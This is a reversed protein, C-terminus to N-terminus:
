RFSILQYQLSVRESMFILINVLSKSRYIRNQLNEFTLEFCLLCFLIRTDIIFETYVEEM